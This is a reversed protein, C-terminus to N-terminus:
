MRMYDPVWLFHHGYAIVAQDRVRTVETELEVEYGYKRSANEAQKHAEQVTIVKISATVPVGVILPKPHSLQLSQVIAHPFSAEVLAGILGSILIPSLVAPGVAHQRIWDQARSYEPDFSAHAALAAGGTALLGEANSRPGFTRQISATAGVLEPGIVPKDSEFLSGTPGDEEEEGSPLASSYRISVHRTPLNPHPELMIRPLNLPATRCRKIAHWASRQVVYRAAKMTIPNSNATTEGQKQREVFLQRSQQGEPTNAEISQHSARYGIASIVSLM